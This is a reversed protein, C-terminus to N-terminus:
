SSNFCALHKFCASHLFHRRKGIGVISSCRLRFTSYHWASNVMRSFINMYSEKNRGRDRVRSAGRKTVAATPFGNAINVIM